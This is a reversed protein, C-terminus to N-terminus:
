RAKAMMPKAHAFFADISPQDSKYSLRSIEKGQRFLVLTSQKQVQMEKRLDKHSDFDAKFAVVHGYGGELHAAIKPEQARCVACWPAHFFVLVPADDAAAARFAAADYPRFPGDMMPTSMQSTGMQASVTTFGAAALVAIALIHRMPRTM